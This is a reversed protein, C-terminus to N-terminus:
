WETENPYYESLSYNATYGSFPKVSKAVAFVALTSLGFLISRM